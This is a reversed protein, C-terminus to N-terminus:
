QNSSNAGELMYTFKHTIGEFNTEQKPFKLLKAAKISTKKFLDCQYVDIFAYKDDIKNSCGGEIFSVDTVSGDKLITFSTNAYGMINKKIAKRPYVPTVKYLPTFTENLPITKFHMGDKNILFGLFKGFIDRSYLSREWPSSIDPAKYDIKRHKLDHNDLFDISFIVFVEFAEENNKIEEIPISVAINRMYSNQIILRDQKTDTKMVSTSTGLNKQLATQGEYSDWESERNFTEEHDSKGINIILNEREIDYCVPSYESCPVRIQGLNVKYLKTHNRNQSNFEKLLEQYESDKMWKDKIPKETKTIQAVLSNFNTGDFLIYNGDDGDVGFSGFTLLTVLVPLHKNM